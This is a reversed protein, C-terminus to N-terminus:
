RVSPAKHLVVRVAWGDKLKYTQDVHPAGTRAPALNASGTKTDLQISIREGDALALSEAIVAPLGRAPKWDVQVFGESREGVLSDFVPRHVFTTYTGHEIVQTVEGGSFRPSVTVGTASAFKKSFYNNGMFTALVILITLVAWGYGLISYLKKM